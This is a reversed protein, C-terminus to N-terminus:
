VSKHVIISLFLGKTYMSFTKSRQTWSMFFPPLFLLTANIIKNLTYYIYVTYIYIYIYIYITHTHTHWDFNLKNYNICMIYVFKFKWMVAPGGRLIDQKKELWAEEFYMILNTHLMTWSAPVSMLRLWLQWSFRKRYRLWGLWNGRSWM